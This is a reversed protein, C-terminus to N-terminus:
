IGVLGQSHETEQVRDVVIPIKIEFYIKPLKIPGASDRRETDNILCNMEEDYKCTKMESLIDIHM